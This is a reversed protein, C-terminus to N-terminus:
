SEHALFSPLALPLQCGRHSMSDAWDALLYFILAEDTFVCAETRAVHCYKYEINLLLTEYLDGRFSTKLCLLSDM